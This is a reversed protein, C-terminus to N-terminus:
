APLIEITGNLRAREAALVVLHSALSEAPGSKISHPDGTAVALTFADMLGADGGGHGDAASMGGAQPM